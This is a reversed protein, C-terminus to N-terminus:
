IVAFSHSLNQELAEQGSAAEIININDLDELVANMALRNAYQDDVLLIDTRAATTAPKGNM